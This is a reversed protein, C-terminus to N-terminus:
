MLIGKKSVKIGIEERMRLLSLAAEGEGREPGLGGVWYFYAYHLDEYFKSRGRRRRIGERREEGRM